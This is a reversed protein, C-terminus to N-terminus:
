GATRWSSRLERAVAHRIGASDAALPRPFVADLLLFADVRAEPSADAIAAIRDALPDVLPELAAPGERPSVADVRRDPRCAPDIPRGAALADAITGLLRFAAAEQSGDWAIQSLLHRISPNRFRELIAGIYTVPDLDPSASLSAAIDVLRM